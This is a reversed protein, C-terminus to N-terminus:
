ECAKWYGRASRHCPDSRSRSFRPFFLRLTAHGCIFGDGEFVDCPFIGVHRPNSSRCPPLPFQQFRHRLGVAHQRSPISPILVPLLCPLRPPLRARKSISSSTLLRKVATRFITSTIDHLARWRFIRIGENCRRSKQLRGALLLMATIPALPSRLGRFSGFRVCVPNPNRRRCKAM